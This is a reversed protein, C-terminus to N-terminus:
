QKEKSSFVVVVFLAVVEMTNKNLYAVINLEKQHNTDKEKKQKSNHMSIISKNLTRNSVCIGAVEM